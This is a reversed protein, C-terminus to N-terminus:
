FSFNSLYPPANGSHSLTLFPWCAPPTLQLDTLWDSVAEATGKKAKQNKGKQSPDVPFTGLGGEKQAVRKDKKSRLGIM